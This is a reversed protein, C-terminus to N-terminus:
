NGGRLSIAWLVYGVAALLVGVGGLVIGPKSGVKFGLFFETRSDVYREVSHDVHATFAYQDAFSLGVGGTYARGEADLVGTAVDLGMRPTLWYRGRVKLGYLFGNNAGVIATLGVAIKESTNVMPGLEYSPYHESNTLGYAYGAETLFFARCDPLPKGFTCFKPLDSQAFAPAHALLLALLALKKM